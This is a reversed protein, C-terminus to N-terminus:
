YSFADVTKGKNDLLKIVEPLAGAGTRLVRQSAEQEKETIGSGPVAAKVLAAV